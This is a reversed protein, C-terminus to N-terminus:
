LVRVATRVGPRRQQADGGRGPSRGTLRAQRGASHPLLRGARGPKAKSGRKAQAEAGYAGYYDYYVYDGHGRQSLRNLAAGLVRAGSKALAERGHGAADRRTRGADIVLLTGDTISALIAADTVAQLPPSDVIM